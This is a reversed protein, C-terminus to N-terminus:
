IVVVGHHRVPPISTYSWANKVEANSQPSRDVGRERRKMGPTFYEPVWQVSSQTPGLAPRSATAFLLFRGTTGIPFRVGTTLGM